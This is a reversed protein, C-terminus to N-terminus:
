SSDNQEQQAQALLHSVPVLGYKKGKKTELVSEARNHLMDFKSYTKDQFAIKSKESPNHYKISAEM